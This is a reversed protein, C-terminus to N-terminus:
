MPAYDDSALVDYDRDLLLALHARTSCAATAIVRQIEVKQVTLADSVTM